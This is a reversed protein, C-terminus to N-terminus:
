FKSCIIFFLESSCSFYKVAIYCSLVLVAMSAISCNSRAMEGCRSHLGSKIGRLKWMEKESIFSPNDPTSFHTITIFHSM